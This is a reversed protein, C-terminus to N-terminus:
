ISVGQREQEHNAARLLGDPSGMDAFYGTYEVMQAGQERYFNHIDVIELEGSQSPQMGNIFDFVQEDYYYSIIARKGVNVYKPKEFIADAEPIWVSHEDGHPFDHWFLTPETQAPPAPDYYCDGLVLPFLGGVEGAVLGLAQAVGGPRNQVKYLVDMGHEAGDKVHKIMSPLGEPSSVIVASDCGMERLTRLPYDIMPKDYVLAMSKPYHDTAPRLRSGSGGSLIVGRM